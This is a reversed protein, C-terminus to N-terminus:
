EKKKNKDDLMKQQRAKQQQILDRTRRLGTMNYEPMIGALRKIEAEILNPDYDRIGDNSPSAYWTMKASLPANAPLDLRYGHDGESLPFPWQKRKLM